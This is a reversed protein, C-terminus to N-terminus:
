AYLDQSLEEPEPLPSEIAYKTAEEIERQVEEELSTVEASTLVGASTM